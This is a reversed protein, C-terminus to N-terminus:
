CSKLLLPGCLENESACRVKCFTISAEAELLTYAFCFDRAENNTRPMFWLELM